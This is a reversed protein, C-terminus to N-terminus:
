LSSFHGGEGIKFLNFILFPLNSKRVFEATTYYRCHGIGTPSGLVWYLRVWGARSYYVLSFSGGKKKRNKEYLLSLRTETSNITLESCFLIFTCKKTKKFYFIVLWDTDCFRISCQEFLFFCNMSSSNKYIQIILFSPFNNLRYFMLYIYFM